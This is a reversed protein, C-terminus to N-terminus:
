ECSHYAIKRKLLRWIFTDKQHQSHYYEFCEQSPLRILDHKEGGLFFHSKMIWLYLFTWLFEQVRYFTFCVYLFKYNYQLIFIFDTIDYILIATIFIDVYLPFPSITDHYVYRSITQMDWGRDDKHHASNKWKHNDRCEILFFDQRRLTSKICVLLLHRM